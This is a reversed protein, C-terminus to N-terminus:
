HQGYHFCTNEKRAKVIIHCNNFEGQKGTAIIPLLFPVAQPIFFSTYEEAFSFYKVFTSVGHVPLVFILLVLDCLALNFLLCCVSSKMRPRSLVMMTLINGVIGLLAMLTVGIGVVIFEFTKDEELLEFFRLRDESDSSSSSDAGTTSVAAAAAAAAPLASAHELIKSGNEVAALLVVSSVNEPLLLSSSM